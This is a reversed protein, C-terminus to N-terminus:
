DILQPPWAECIERLAFKRYVAARRQYQNFLLPVLSDCFDLIRGAEKGAFPRLARGLLQTTRATNGNPITIVVTDIAPLDFGEGVLSSTSILVKVLGASFDSIMGTREAAPVSGTLVISQIGLSELAAAMTHCHDVRESLVLTRDGRHRAIADAVLGNRERNVSIRTVLKGYDKTYKTKFGTDVRIMEVPTINGSRMLNKANVRAIVPGVIDFLVPHLRDKRTPTATLGFRYRAPFAAVIGKFSEAPCHHAEDLIVMGFSGALERLDRRALTQVMAVTIDGYENRGGGIIGPEVGLFGRIAAATQEMLVATHVIFLTNMGTEAILGCAIVTKGSGTPAQIVGQRAAVATKVALAQYDRLEAKLTFRDPGVAITRDQFEVTCEPWHQTIIACVDPEAGRPLIWTGDPGVDFLSIQKPIHRCPRRYRRADGYVPNDRVFREVFAAKIADRNEDPIVEGPRELLLRSDRIFTVTATATASILTAFGRLGPVVSEFHYM